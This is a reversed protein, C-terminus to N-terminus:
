HGLSAAVDNEWDVKRFYRMEGDGRGPHMIEVLDSLIWDPRIMGMEWIEFSDVEANKLGHQQYVCGDRYAEFRSLVREDTYLASFPDRIVWCDADTASQLLTETSLDSFSDRQPDDPEGLVLEVNADRILAADANRQTVAWRDGGSRYWAWLMSREPASEAVATLRDINAQVEAVLAEAEAERETLMGVLRVWDTRGLYRPEADIFTPVVPIGLEAVRNLHQTHTLDAQKAFLIDPQSAVLADLTPPIHWGYGIQQVEGRKVRGRIDDDYSNHGGVAVIRDAIGLARLMGEHAQDNVAIREVPTRVLTAGVFPGTLEPVPSDRDVLVLRHRQAPGSASGGWTVLAAETQAHEPGAGCASMMFALLPVLLTRITVLQAGSFM